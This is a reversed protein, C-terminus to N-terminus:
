SKSSIRNFFHEITPLHKTFSTYSHDGGRSLYMKAGLLKLAAEQYNLTEDESETLLFLQSLKLSTRDVDLALLQEMHESKVEYEVGTYMNKNIGIYDSLLEYPRVAPNILVAPLAYNVHLYLSYFGGLSSGILGSYEAVQLKNELLDIAKSPEAPLAPIDIRFLDNEAFYSCTQNAKESAPSSNFGHLYLLRKTAM